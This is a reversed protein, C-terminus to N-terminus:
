MIILLWVPRRHYPHSLIKLLNHKDVNYQPTIFAIRHPPISVIHLINCQMTCLQLLLTQDIRQATKNRKNAM